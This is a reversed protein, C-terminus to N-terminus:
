KIMYVAIQYPRGDFQLYGNKTQQPLLKANRFTKPPKKSWKKTHIREVEITPQTLNRSATWRRGHIRNEYEEFTKSTEKILYSALESLDDSYLVKLHPTGHPWFDLLKTYMSIDNFVIHHHIRHNKYETVQIYKFEKDEKKYLKRAQRFFKEINKKANELDPLNDDSYTLTLHGDKGKAFNANLLNALKIESNRANIKKVDASTPKQNPSRASHKGRRTSFIKQVTIFKGATTIKKYYM